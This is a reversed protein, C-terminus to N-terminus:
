RKFVFSGKFVLQFFDRVHRKEVAVIEGCSFCFNGCEVQEKYEINKNLLKGLNLVPCKVDANVGAKIYFVNVVSESFNSFVGNVSIKLTKRQLNIIM